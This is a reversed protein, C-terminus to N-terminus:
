ICPVGNRLEDAKDIASDTGSQTRIGYASISM